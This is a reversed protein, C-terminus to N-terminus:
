RRGGVRIGLGANKCVGSEWPVDGTRVGWSKPGCIFGVREDEMMKWVGHICGERGGCYVKDEGPSGFKHNWVVVWVGCFGFGQM